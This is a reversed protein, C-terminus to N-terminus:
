FLQCTNESLAFVDKLKTITCEHKGDFDIPKKGALVASSKAPSQFRKRLSFVHKLKKIKEGITLKTHTYKM